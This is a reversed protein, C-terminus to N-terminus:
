RTLDWREDAAIEIDNRLVDVAVFGTGPHVVGQKLGLRPLAVAGVNAEAIDICKTEQVRPLASLECEPIVKSFGKLMVAANSDIMKQQGRSQSLSQVTALYVFSWSREIPRRVVRRDM